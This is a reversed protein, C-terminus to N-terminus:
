DKSIVTGVSQGPEFQLCVRAGGLPSDEISLSGGLRGAAASAIALGLGSGSTGRDSEVRAFPQMVAERHEPAIGPGDDDVLVSVLPGGIEFGVCVHSEAHQVANELLPDLASELIARPVVFTGKRLPQLSTEVRVNDPAIMTVRRVSQEIVSQLDVFSVEPLTAENPLSSRRLLDRVMRNLRLSESRLDELLQNQSPNVANREALLEVGASIVAATTRMEHSADAILRQERQLARDLPRFATFRLIAYVCAAGAASLAILLAFQRAVDGGLVRNRPAAAFAILASGDALRQTGVRVTVAIDNLAIDGMGFSIENESRAIQDRLAAIHEPAASSAIIDGGPGVWAIQVGKQDSVATALQKGPDKGAAIRTATRDIRTRLRADVASQADVDLAASIAVSTAIVIVTISVFILLASWRGIRQILRLPRNM